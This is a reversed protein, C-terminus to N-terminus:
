NRINKMVKESIASARPCYAALMSDAEKEVNEAWKSNKFKGTNIFVNLAASELAARCLLASCGVDSLLMRNGKVLMEELLEIVKCCCHMIEIPAKCASFSAEELINERCPNDKPIAYAKSLPEFAAADEDVLVLEQKQLEECKQLIRKMDNEVAAYKKKGVTFNGSMSCLATGLAGALAAAGGGGPVPASSALLEAFEICSKETLKEM